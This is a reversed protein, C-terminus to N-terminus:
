GEPPAAGPGYGAPHAQAWEWADGIM